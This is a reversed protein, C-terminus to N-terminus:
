MKIGTSALGDIMKNQPVFYADKMIDKIKFSKKNVNPQWSALANLKEWRVIDILLSPIDQIGRVYLLSLLLSHSKAVTEKENFCSAEVKYKRKWVVTELWIRTSSTLSDEPVM